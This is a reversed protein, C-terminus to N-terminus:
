VGAQLSGVTGLVRARARNADAAHRSKPAVPHRLMARGAAIRIEDAGDFGALRDAYIWAASADRQALQALVSLSAIGVDLADPLRAGKPDREIEDVSPLRGKLRVLAMYASATDPGLNGELSAAALDGGEPEGADILSALLRLARVIARPSAWPVQSVAIGAPPEVQLLNPSAGLMASYGTALAQLSSGDAGLALLYAQVEALTPRVRVHTVRNLAPPALDQGSAGQDVPNSALVIRTDPHLTYDGARRENILTLSSGQLAPGTQLYEDLFLIGPARGAERVPGIPLRLIAGDSPVPIGGLDSPDCQSLILSYLPVGMERAITGLIETKGIGPAGILHLPTNSALSARVMAITQTLSLTVTLGNM